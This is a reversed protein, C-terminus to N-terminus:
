KKKQKISVIEITTRTDIEGSLELKEKYAGVDVHKAVIDLARAAGASDFKYQGIENGERDRVPEAQVCRNHLEAARDLVWRADIRTKESRKQKLENIKEIVQPKRLNEYGMESATKKSYGARIAAKTANLDILYEECFRELKPTWKAM